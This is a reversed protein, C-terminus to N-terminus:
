DAPELELAQRARLLLLQALAADAGLPEAITWRVGRHLRACDATMRPIDSECHRGPAVFVPLVVIHGAGAAVCADFAHQLTPEAIEMHACEVCVFEAGGADRGGRGGGRLQSALLDRLGDLVRNAAAERSGHDILVLGKPSYRDHESM